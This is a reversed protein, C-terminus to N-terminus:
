TSRTPASRRWVSVRRLAASTAPSGRSPRSTRRNPARRCVEGRTPRAGVVDEWATLWRVDRISRQFQDRRPRHTRTNRTRAPRAQDKRCLPPDGRQPTNHTSRVLTQRTGHIGAHEPGRRPEPHATKERHRTSARTAAGWDTRHDIGTRRDLHMGPEAPSAAPQASEDPSGRRLLGHTAAVVERSSAGVHLNLRCYIAYSMPNRGRPRTGPSKITEQGHRTKTPGRAASCGSDPPTEVPDERQDEDTRRRAAKKWASM